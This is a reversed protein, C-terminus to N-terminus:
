LSIFSFDKAVPIYTKWGNKEHRTIYLHLFLYKLLFVFNFPYTLRSLCIGLFRYSHNWSYAGEGFELLNM